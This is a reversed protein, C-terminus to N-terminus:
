FIQGLPVVTFAAVLTGTTQALERVTINKNSQLLSSCNDYIKEKREETLTVTMKVSDIIFNLFTIKQMPVFVSKGPHITFGLSRLLDVTDTANNLCIRATEGILLSHNLYKVSLHGKSRLHKFPPSMVKTFEWVAPAFGNPLVTYNFYYNEWHMKMTCVFFM